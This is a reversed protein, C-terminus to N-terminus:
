YSLTLTTWTMIAPAERADAGAARWRSTLPLSLCCASWRARPCRAERGFKTLIRLVDAARETRRSRAPVPRQHQQGRLRGEGRVPQRLGDIGVGARRRPQRVQEHHEAGAEAFVPAGM